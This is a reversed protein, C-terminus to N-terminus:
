FSLLDVERVANSAIFTRSVGNKNWGKGAAVESSDDGKVETDISKVHLFACEAIWFSLHPRSNVKGGNKKCSEDRNLEKSCKEEVRWRESLDFNMQLIHICTIYFTFLFLFDEGKKFTSHNSMCLLCIIKKYFLKSGFHFMFYWLQPPKLVHPCKLWRPLNEDGEFNEVQTLTSGAGPDGWLKLHLPNILWAAQRGPIELTVSLAFSKM